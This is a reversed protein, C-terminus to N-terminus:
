KVVFTYTSDKYRPDSDRHTMKWKTGKIPVGRDGITVTRPPDKFANFLVWTRKKPNTVSSNDWVYSDELNRFTVKGSGHGPTRKLCAANKKNKKLKVVASSEGTQEVKVNVLKCRAPKLKPTGSELTFALYTYPVANRCREQASYYKNLEEPWLYDGAKDEPWPYPWYDCNDVPSQQVSTPDVRLEYRGGRDAFIMDAYDLISSFDLEANTSLTNWDCDTGSCDRSISSDVPDIELKQGNLYWTYDFDWYEYDTGGDPFLNWLNDLLLTDVSYSDNGAFHTTRTGTIRNGPYAFEVDSIFQNIDETLPPDHVANAPAPLALLGVSATLVGAIVRVFTKGM